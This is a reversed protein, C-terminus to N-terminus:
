EKEEKPTKKKESKKGEKKAEKTESKTESSKKEAKAPSVKAERIMLDIVKDDTMQGRLSELQDERALAEHLQAARQGRMRALEAVHAELENDSVEIKEEDAIRGLIFSVRMDRESQEASTKTIEEAVKEIEDMPVGRYALNMKQRLALREASRKLIDEPLDFKVLELLKETVQRGLETHAQQEKAGVLRERVEKKLDELGEFLMDKAFEDDLEPLRPRKVDKITLTITATKGRYEEKQYGKPLTLEGSASEGAKKGVLKKWFERDLGGLWNDESMNMQQDEVRQIEQGECTIVCDVVPVDGEKAADTAPEIVANRRRLNDIAKGLEEETVETSPKELDLGKYAPLAFEPAVELTFIYKLGTEVDFAISEEDIDPPGLPRIKNEKLAEEYSTGILTNKVDEAVAKHFRNEILKRPTHGKRFGPIVATTELEKFSEELKEKVRESPVEITLKKKCPGVNEINVQM